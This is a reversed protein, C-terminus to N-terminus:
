RPTGVPAAAPTPGGFPEWRMYLPVTVVLHARARIPPSTPTPRHTAVVWVDGINNRNGSRKPNPGDETPTFLGRQDISGVWKIDDDDYTVGYEEISWTADVPGLEIDDPTDARGDAGHHFAIAEFQQLQKPFVVGGVRAMGALPTVKIRSIRDYVAVAARLSSGGIFLDRAGVAAASDVRVRLSVADPTSRVVREIHVGPGLSVAAPQLDAPLNAGYVTVDHAGATALARPLVGAVVIDRGIRTATVDMGTEDYGGTFWRGSITQWGPEVSMVERWPEAEARGTEASRGRWQYGTYVIVRGDRTVTRGTGGYSYTARTTFEDEATPSRTVTLRGFFSGRGPEKGSLLWEGQLPPPRMTASWATWDPTTLPFARSLHSIANDMPHQPPATDSGGGSRFGQGDTLPYYGRHTAVLLAWEDGTRRQTIVRGMSHCARCTTETRTDATYRYEIARREVEFRGPALETPAIGQANSFYKVIARATPPDLRVGNLSMMRRVSAEWGEPTKRMYSLRGMRGTSDQRHCTGCSAIVTQDRIVYGAATDRQQPFAATPVASLAVLVLALSLRTM